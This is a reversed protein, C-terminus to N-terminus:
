MQQAREPQTREPRSQPAAPRIRVPCGEMTARADNCATGRSPTEGVRVAPGGSHSM